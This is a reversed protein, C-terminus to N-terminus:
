TANPVHIISITVEFEHCSVRTSKPTSHITQATIPKEEEKKTMGFVLSDRIETGFRVTEEAIVAKTLGNIEEKFEEDHHILELMETKFELDPLSNSFNHNSTINNTMISFINEIEYNGYNATLYKKCSPSSQLSLEQHQYMTYKLVIDGLARQKTINILTNDSVLDEGSKTASEKLHEICIDVIPIAPALLASIRKKRTQTSQPSCVIRKIQLFITPRRTINKGV